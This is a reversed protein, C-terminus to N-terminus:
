TAVIAATAQMGTYTAYAEIFTRCQSHWGLHCIRQGRRGVPDQNQQVAFSEASSSGCACRSSASVKGIAGSPEAAAYGARVECFLHGLHCRRVGAPSWLAREPCVAERMASRGLRPSRRRIVAVAPAAQFTGRYWRVKRQDQGAAGNRRRNQRLSRAVPRLSGAAVELSEVACLYHARRVPHLSHSTTFSQAGASEVRLYLLRWPRSRRAHGVYGCNSQRVPLSCRACPVAEALYHIATRWFEVACIWGALTGCIWCRAGIRQGHQRGGPDSRGGSWAACSVPMTPTISLRAWM